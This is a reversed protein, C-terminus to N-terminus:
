SRSNRQLNVLWTSDSSCYSRYAAWLTPFVSIFQCVVLGYISAGYFSRITDHTNLAVHYALYGYLCLTTLLIIAHYYSLTTKRRILFMAGVFTIVVRNWYLISGNHDLLMTNISVMLTVIALTFWEYRHPKYLSLAFFLASCCLLYNM